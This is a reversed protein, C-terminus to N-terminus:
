KLFFVGRKMTTDDIGRDLSPSADRFRFLRSSGSTAADWFAVFRLRLASCLLGCLTAIADM